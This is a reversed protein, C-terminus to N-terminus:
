ENKDVVHTIEEIRQRNREGRDIEFNLHPITRLSVHLKLYSKIESAKRKLFTLADEEGSTPLTTFYITAKHLNPSISINTITILPQPNAENKIYSAVAERIISVARDRRNFM